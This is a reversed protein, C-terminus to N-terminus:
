GGALLSRMRAGILEADGPLLPRPDFLLVGAAAYHDRVFVAPDGERLAEALERATFPCDPEVEVRCRSIARGAEDRSRGERIHPLGSLERILKEVREEMEEAWADGDRAAYLEVARLLGMANEKGVKMARGIGRYHLRAADTLDKRGCLFGSAPGQIAKSGSYCVLDAGLSVYKSLDEEASADVILPLGHRHAIDLMEELPLMGKQVCHHSQVFLLAATKEGLAGLVSARTTKNAWGAEVPEAGALRLMQTVPAGYDVAHGKQLLIQNRLGATDPLREVLDPRPGTMVAAAALCIAASASATVCVGQAGTYPALLEGARDLLEEMVVYQRAAGAMAAAAEEPLVSVGLATMRGSANVVRRLGAKEYVTM